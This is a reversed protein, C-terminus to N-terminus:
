RTSADNMNGIKKDPINKPADRRNAKRRTNVLTEIANLKSALQNRSIEEDGLMTEFRKAEDPSIVGGSQLRGIGEIAAARADEIPKSAGFAGPITEQLGPSQMGKFGDPAVLKGTKPDRTLGSATGLEGITVAAAEAKGQDESFAAEERATKETQERDTRAPATEGSPIYSGLGAQTLLTKRQEPTAGREEYLKDLELARKVLDAGNGGKGEGGVGAGSLRQRGQETGVTQSTAAGRAQQTALTGYYAKASEAKKAASETDLQAKMTKANALVTASKEDLTMADLRKSLADNMRAELMPAAAEISGLEKELGRLESGRDDMQAQINQRKQEQISQLATNPGGFKTATLSRLAVGLLGLTTGLAGKDKWLGNIDTKRASVEATKKIVQAKRAEASAQAASTAAEKDTAMQIIAQKRQQQAAVVSAAGTDQAQGQAQYGRDIEGQQAEFEAKDQASGTRSVSDSANETRSQSATASASDTFRSPGRAGPLAPVGGPSLQAPAAPAPQANLPKPNESAEEPQDPQGPLAAVGSELRDLEEPSAQLSAKEADTVPAGEPEDFDMVAGGASVEAKGQAMLQQAQQPSGSAYDRKGSKRTWYGDGLDDSEPDQEFFIPPDEEDDDYVPM